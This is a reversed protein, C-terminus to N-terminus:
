YSETGLKNLQPRIVDRPGWIGIGVRRTDLYKLAATQVDVASIAQISNSLKAYHELPLEDLFLGALARAFGANSSLKDAVTGLYRAKAAELREPAVEGEGLETVAHLIIHIAQEMRAPEVDARVFFTGAFPNQQCAASVTYSMGAAHRLRERAVSRSSEGLLMAALDLAPGAPNTLPVCPMAIVLASFAPSKSALLQARPPGALPQEIQLPQRPRAGRVSWDGFHQQALALAKEPTVDGVMVLASTAPEYSEAHFKQASAATFPQVNDPDDLRVALPTGPGYLQELAASRLLQAFGSRTRVRAERAARTSAAADFAPRRIIAALRAVASDQEDSPARLVFTTGSFTASLADLDAEDDDASGQEDASEKSAGYDMLRATYLALGATQPTGEERALRSAFAVAVFPLQRREATIVTLGNDLKQESAAPVQWAAADLPPPERRYAADPTPTFPARPEHLGARGCGTVLALLATCLAKPGYWASM